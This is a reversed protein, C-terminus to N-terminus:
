QTLKRPLTGEAVWRISTGVAEHIRREVIPSALFRVVALIPVDRGPHGELAVHEEFAAVVTKIAHAVAIPRVLPDALCLDELAHRLETVHMGDELVARTGNLARQADKGAIAAVIEEVPMGESRPAVRATPDADMRHGSHIFAVAQFLFRLADPGDHRETANRVASAFTFRHTAWLWGETVGPDADIALDFRLLRGAAAVVLARAIRPAPVGSLCANWVADFAEGISGDLVARTVSEPDFEAGDDARAHVEALRPEIEKLRKTYGSLYPLTDERTGLVTAHLLAPYLERAAAYDVRELLEQAKVMYILPHGFSLFHDSLVGFMWSEIEARPLGADFAGLLLGEAREAEEAEVAARLTGATGGPIPAPSPRRPLRQNAEACMDIAPAIAYMGRVGPYRELLRACDAAVALTHTTGYEAHRADHGAVRALLEAADYGGEM